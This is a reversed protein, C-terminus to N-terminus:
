HWPDPPARDVLLAERSEFPGDVLTQKLTSASACCRVSELSRPESACRHNVRAAAHLPGVRHDAGGSSWVGAGRRARVGAGASVTEGAGRTEHGSHLRLQVHARMMVSRVMNYYLFTFGSLDPKRGM